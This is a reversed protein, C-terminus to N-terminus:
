VTLATDPAFAGYIELLRSKIKSYEKETILGSRVLKRILAMKKAYEMEKRM